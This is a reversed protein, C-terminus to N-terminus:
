VVEVWYTENIFDTFPHDYPLNGFGKQGYGLGWSNKRIWGGTTNWDPFTMTDNYGVILFEHVQMKSGAKLPGHCLLARKVSDADPNVKHYGKIKIVGQQTCSATRSPPFACQPNISCRPTCNSVDYIGTTPNYQWWLHPPNSQKWVLFMSYNYQAESVCDSSLYPFCDGSIAGNKQIDDLVNVGFGGDCGGFGGSVYWQESLNLNPMEPQNAKINYTSEVDAVPAFAYCSGCTGQGPMKVPSVWNRGRWNRWDFRAPLPDLSCPNCPVACIGGCDWDNENDGKIGDSCDCADGIGDKDEDKQDPNIKKPCNDVPDPVGDGACQTLPKLEPSPRITVMEDCDPQAGVTVHPYKDEPIYHTIGSLDRYRIVIEPKAPYPGGVFICSAATCAMTEEGNIVIAIEPNTIDQTYEARVTIRDTPGPDAPELTYQLLQRVPMSPSTATMQMRASGTAGRDDTVTLMVMYTGAQTFTHLLEMEAGTSGDGFDWAYAVISGDPDYSTGASCEVTFPVPGVPPVCTIAALPVQNGPEPTVPPAAGEHFCYWLGASPSGGCVDSSCREPYSFMRQAGERSTCTCGPACPIGTEVATLAELLFINGGLPKQVLPLAYQIWTSNIVVGGTSRAEAAKMGKPVTLMINFFECSDPGELQFNGAPDTTAMSVFSGSDGPSSSCYLTVEAGPTGASRETGGEFVQGSFITLAAAPMVAFLWLLIFIIGAVATKKPRCDNVARKRIRNEMM